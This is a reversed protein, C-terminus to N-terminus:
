ANGVKDTLEKLANQVLASEVLLHRSLDSM